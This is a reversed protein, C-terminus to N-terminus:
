RLARFPTQFTTLDRSCKALVRKDYGIYLDLIGRYARKAFYMALEKIALPLESHAITV